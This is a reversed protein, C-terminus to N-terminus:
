GRPLRYRSPLRLLRRYRSRKGRNTLHWADIQQQMRDREALLAQCRPALDTLLGAFGGWFAEPAVSTGPLAESNVFDYLPKAVRIGASEIYDM